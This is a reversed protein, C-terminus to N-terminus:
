HLEALLLRLAQLWGPYSSRTDTSYLRGDKGDILLNQTSMSTTYRELIYHRVRRRLGFLGGSDDGGGVPVEPTPSVGADADGASPVHFIFFSSMYAHRKTYDLAVSLIPSLLIPQIVDPLDAEQGEDEENEVFATVNGFAKFTCDASDPKEFSSLPIYQDKHNSDYITFDWLNRTPKGQDEDDEDPPLKVKKPTHERDNGKFKRKSAQSQPPPPLPPLVSSKVPIYHTGDRFSVDLAVKVVRDLKPYPPPPIAPVPSWELFSLMLHHHPEKWMAVVNRVNALPSRLSGAPRRLTSAPTTQTLASSGTAGMGTGTQTTTFASPSIHEAYVHKTALPISFAM